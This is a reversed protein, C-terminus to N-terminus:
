KNLIYDLPLDKTKDTLDEKIEVDPKIWIWDIWTQTKWTYWKAITYKLSSWDYYSRITQVSWKWFTKEWVFVLNPFYDKLTWIMIESASATWSNWLVYFNYKTLDFLNEWTSKYSYEWTKSKVVATPQWKEIVLSLMSTVQELYWGPNNRLDIVVKKIWPTNNLVELSKKFEDYVKDWFIRINIYFTDNNIVKYEVDHLSIKARTIEVEFTETWRIITLKVKTWAPWKILAVAQNVTMEPTIEKSDIKSIIDWWKLWSQESPSWSLPSIIVLKWPTTMDVYAWIWEFEWSLEQNFDQAQVPPFYTTYKDWTWAALWEIATYVLEDKDLKDSNYHESLITNYADLLIKFKENNVLDNSSQSAKKSYYEKLLNNTIVFDSLNTNRSKLLEIDSESIFDAWTIESVLSYFEYSGMNKWSNILVEKNPLADIYVLKQLNDYLITWKKVDKYKLEIYKYSEPLENLIYKWIFSFIEARTADRKIINQTTIEITKTEWAFTQFSMNLSFFTIILLSIIKTYKM